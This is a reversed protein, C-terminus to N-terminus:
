AREEIPHIEPIADGHKPAVHKAIHWHWIPWDREHALAALANGPNVAYAHGVAGLVHRDQWCNGYAHSQQLDLAADRGL